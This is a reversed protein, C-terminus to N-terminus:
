GRRPMAEIRISANRVSGALPCHVAHQESGTRLKTGVVDNERLIRWSLGVSGDNVLSRHGWSGLVAARHDLGVVACSCQEEDSRLAVADAEDLERGVLGEAAHRGLNRSWPQSPKPQTFLSDESIRVTASWSKGSEEIRFGRNAGESFGEKMEHTLGAKAGLLQDFAFRVGQGPPEFFVFRQEQLPM